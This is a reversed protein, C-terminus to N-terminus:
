LTLHQQSPAAESHRVAEGLVARRAQMSSHNELSGVSTGSPMLSLAIVAMLALANFALLIHNM